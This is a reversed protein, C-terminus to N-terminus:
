KTQLSNLMRKAPDPHQVRKAKISDGEEEIVDNWKKQQIIELERYKFFL